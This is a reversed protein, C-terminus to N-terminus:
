LTIPKGDSLKQIVMSTYYAGRSVNFNVPNIRLGGLKLEPEALEEVSKYLPRELMLLYTNNKSVINQPPRKVDALAMIEPPPVQYTTQAFVAFQMGALLLLMMRKMTM